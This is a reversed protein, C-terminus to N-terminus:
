KGLWIECSKTQEFVPVWSAWRMLNWVATWTVQGTVRSLIDEPLDGQAWSRVQLCWARCIGSLVVIELQNEPDIYFVQQGATHDLAHLIHPGVASSISSCQMQWCTFQLCHPQCTYHLFWHFSRTKLMVPGLLDSLGECLLACLSRGDILNLRRSLCNYFIWRIKFILLSLCNICLAKSWPLVPLKCNNEFRICAYTFLSVRVLTLSPVTQPILVLYLKLIKWLFQVM